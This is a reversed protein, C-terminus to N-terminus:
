MCSDPLRLTITVGVLDQLSTHLGMCIRIFSPSTQIYVLIEKEKETDTIAMKKRKIIYCM